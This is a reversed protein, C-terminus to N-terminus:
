RFVIILGGCIGGALFSTFGILINRSLTANQYENLSVSATTLQLNLATLDQQKLISDAKLKANEARLTQLETKATTLDKKLQNLEAGSVQYIEDDSFSQAWLSLSLALFLLFLFSKKGCM